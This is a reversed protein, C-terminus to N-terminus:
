IPRSGNTWNPQVQLDGRLDDYKILDPLHGGQAAEIEGTNERLEPEIFELGLANYISEENEGAIQMEKKGKIAFLGYENLKWNKKMALERLAVNHDKSGTFYCLAAGYSKAPVVRIDVDIGSRLRVSSKTEGKAYIRAVEPMNVFYEMIPGPDGSVALFDIDGITEKRRRISGAVTLRDIKQKWLGAEVARIQPMAFGLLFRGKSGKSFEISKLINEETKEGFGKLERIRGKRAADELDALTKIGLKENLKKLSKPGIGEIEQFESLEIPNKRKLEERYEIKGTKFLEEIKEAISLGVNPIELLAKIGGEKYMQEVARDLGAIIEAAKEYARPKFPINQMELYEAIDFLLDAINKNSFSPM